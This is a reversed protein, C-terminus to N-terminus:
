FQVFFGSFRCSFPVKAAFFHHFSYLNKKCYAPANSIRITPSTNKLISFHWGMDRGGPRFGAVRGRRKEPSSPYSHLGGGGDGAGCGRGGAHAGGGDHGAGVGHGACGDGCVRGGVVARGEGGGEANRPLVREGGGGDVCPVGLGRLLLDGRQRRRCPFGGGAVEAPRIAPAVGALVAERPRTERGPREITLVDVGDDALRIRNQNVVEVGGGGDGPIFGFGGGGAGGGLGGAGGGGGKVTHFGAAAEIVCEARVVGGFGGLGGRFAGGPVDFVARAVAGEGDEDGLGDAVGGAADVAGDDTVSAGVTKFGDGGVIALVARFVRRAVAVAVVLLGVADVGDHEVGGGARFTEGVRLGGGDDRVREFGDRVAVAGVAADKITHHLSIGPAVDTLM